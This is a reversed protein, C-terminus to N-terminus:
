TFENEILEILQMGNEPPSFVPVEALWTLPIQFVCIKSIGHMKIRISYYEYLHIKGMYVKTIFADYSFLSDLALKQFRELFTNWDTSPLLESRGKLRVIKKNDYVMGIRQKLNYNYMVSSWERNKNRRIHLLQHLKKVFQNKLNAERRNLFIKIDVDNDDNSIKLEKLIKEEKKYFFTGSQGLLKNPAILM